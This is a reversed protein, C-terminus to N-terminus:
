KKWIQELEANKEEIYKMFEVKKYKYIYIWLIFFVILMFKWIHNVITEYYKWFVVWLTIITISRIISWIINYLMFTMSKMWMSWAIFPLFARTIPHFKWITIWLPWWKDIWKKLYRVETLWIGFWIWYKAFFSDWYIKGLLYWIYNWIIAWLSAIIYIYILNTTSIKAFFSWVILLINQGPVVVWLVPFAEILSSTFAILYNWNWLSQILIELKKILDIILEKDFISIIAIVLTLWILIINLVHFINQILKKIFNKNM